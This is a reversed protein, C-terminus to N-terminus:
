GVTYSGTGRPVLEVWTRGPALLLPDGEADFLELPADLGEKSWTGRVTRGGTAVTVPGSGVLDYTPVRAGGQARYRTDPHPATVAVVNVASLREGSSSAAPVGAESRLWLGEGSDWTWSPRALSSLRFTLSTAPSGDVVATASAADRAFAFQRPPPASRDAGAQALFTEMSGYVNHPARRSSIRYLGPDGDDHSIVQVGSSRVEALIGDQGGSFALLGGLPAVLAPDVPRVSRIPGVDGPVTSHFVAVYRSVDFEVVTEWVVDAHELGTQPRSQASNEVKVAVAPRPTVEEVEVGTLPWVVPVDPPPPTARTVEIAPTVTVPDPVVPEPPQACATAAVVVCTGSVLAGARRAAARVRGHGGPQRAAQRRAPRRRAAGWPNSTSM